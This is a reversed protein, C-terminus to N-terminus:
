SQALIKRIWASLTNQLEELHKPDRMTHPAGSISHLEKEGPLSALLVQQDSVPTTTDESGVILLVPMTLQGAGKLLDYQMRDEIHSWPTRKIVGPRSTSIEVRWGTSRWKELVDPALHKLSLDGSVVTSIPALAKIDEPNKEAYLVVAMGGLSQGALWFPHRFWSQTRAWAIVDELDHLYSTLTADEYRGDSEGFTNTTDFRIVTFGRDKFAQATAEIHPQEKFGSLGHMIFVLGRADPNEEILVIIRQGKRNTITIKEMSGNYVTPCHCISLGQALSNM